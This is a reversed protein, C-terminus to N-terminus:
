SAENLYGFVSAGDLNVEGELEFQTWSEGIFPIAAGPLLTVNGFFVDRIPGVENSGECKVECYIQTNASIEVVQNPTTGSLDGLLALEMNEMTAEELTLVLKGKQSVVVTKDRTKIGARSSYHEEKEVEASFEFKPVNGVDVWAVYDWSATGDTIGAGTTSPGGSSASTGAGVCKYLNRSAGNRVYDGLAYATDAAWVTPLKTWKRISVVGKAIQYNDSSAAM